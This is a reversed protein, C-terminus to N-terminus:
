ERPSSLLSSCTTQPTTDRTAKGNSQSENGGKSGAGEGGVGCVTDFTDLGFLERTKHHSCVQPDENKKDEQRHAKSGGLWALKHAGKSPVQCLHQALARGARPEGFSYLSRYAVSLPLHKIKNHINLAKRTNAQTLKSNHLKGRCGAARCIPASTM